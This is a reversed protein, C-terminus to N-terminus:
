REEETVLAAARGALWRSRAAALARHLRSKVTGLPTGLVLAIEALDLGAFFRLELVRRQAGPLAALTARVEGATEERLVAGLGDDAAALLALTADDLAPWPPRRPAKRCRNAVLTLLWPRFPRADDFRPLGRWADLWAEQVADEASSADASLVRAVRWAVAAHREVLQGFAAQDGARARRILQREM